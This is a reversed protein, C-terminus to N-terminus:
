MFWRKHLVGDLKQIAENVKDVNSYIVFGFGHSRGSEKDFIVKVDLVKGCDSFKAWLSEDDVTWSLYIVFLKNASDYGAGGGFLRDQL